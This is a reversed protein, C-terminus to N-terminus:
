NQYPNIHGAYECNLTFPLFDFKEFAEFFKPMSKKILLYTNQYKTRVSETEHHERYFHIKRLFHLDEDVRSYDDTEQFLKIDSPLIGKTIRYLRRLYQWLHVFYFNDNFEVLDLDFIIIEKVLSKDVFLGICKLNKEAEHCKILAKGYCADINSLKKYYFEDYCIIARFFINQYLLNYFLIQVYEILYTCYYHIPKNDNENFIIVTDSLMIIKFDHHKHAKINNITSFIDPIKDSNDSVLDKFGLIDLYLFVKKM